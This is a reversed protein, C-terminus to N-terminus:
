ETEEMTAALMFKCLEKINTIPRMTGDKVHDQYVKYMLGPADDGIIRLQNFQHSYCYYACVLTKNKSMFKHVMVYMFDDKPSNKEPYYRYYVDQKIRM